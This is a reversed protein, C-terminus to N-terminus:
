VVLNMTAVERFSAALVCTGGSNNVLEVQYAARNVVSSTLRLTIEFDGTDEILWEAQKLVISAGVPNDVEAIAYGQQVLYKTPPTVGEEHVM